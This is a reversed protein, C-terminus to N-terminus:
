CGSASKWAAFRAGRVERRAGQGHERVVLEELWGNYPGRRDPGFYWSSTALAYAGPPFRERNDRLYAEYRAFAGVPDHDREAALIYTM